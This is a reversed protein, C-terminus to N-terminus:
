YVGIFPESGVELVFLPQLIFILFVAKRHNNFRIVHHVNLTQQVGSATLLFLILELSAGHDIIVCVLSWFMRVLCKVSSSFNYPEKACIERESILHSLTM